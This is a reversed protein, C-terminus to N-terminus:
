LARKMMLEILNFFLTQDEILLPLGKSSTCFKHQRGVRAAFIMLIGWAHGTTPVDNYDLIGVKLKLGGVVGCPACSALHLCCLLCVSFYDSIM